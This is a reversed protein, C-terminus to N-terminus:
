GKIRPLVYILSYAWVVVFIAFGTTARQRGRLPRPDRAASMPIAVTAVLISMLLAKGM